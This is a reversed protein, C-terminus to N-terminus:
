SYISFRHALNRFNTKGMFSAPMGGNVIEVGVNRIQSNVQMLVNIKCASYGQMSVLEPCTCNFSM